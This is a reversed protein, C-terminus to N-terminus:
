ESKNGAVVGVRKGIEARRLHLADVGLNPLNRQLLPRNDEDLARRAVGAPSPQPVKPDLL